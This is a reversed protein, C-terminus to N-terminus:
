CRGYSGRSTQYGFPSLLLPVPYHERSDRIEFVVNVSPYFCRLKRARFYAATDFTLRYVGRRAPGRFSTPSRGSPDTIGRGLDAV